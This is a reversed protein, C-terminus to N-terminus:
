KGFQCVNQWSNDIVYPAMAKVYLLYHGGNQANIQNLRNKRPHFALIYDGFMIATM